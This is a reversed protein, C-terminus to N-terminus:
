PNMGDQIRGEMEGMRQQNQQNIWEVDRRMTAMGEAWLRSIEVMENYGKRFEDLAEPTISMGGGGPTVTPYVGQSWLQAAFGVQADMAQGAAEKEQRDAFDRLEAAKARMAAQADRQATNAEADREVDRRMDIARQYEDRQAELARRAEPIDAPGIRSRYGIGARNAWALPIETPGVTDGIEDLEALQKKIAVLRAEADATDMGALTNQDDLASPVKMADAHAELEAAKIRANAAAEDKAAAEKEEQRRQFLPNNSLSEGMKTSAQAIVSMRQSIRQLRADLADAGTRVERVAQAFKGWAEAAANVREVGWSSNSLVQGIPRLAEILSGAAVAMLGFSASIPNAVLRVMSALEPFQAALGQIAKSMKEKSARWRTTAETGALAAKVDEEGLKRYTRSLDDSVKNAETTRTSYEAISTKVRDLQKALEAHEKGLAKAKGIQVELHAALQEAGKLEAQTRLIVDLSKVADAM